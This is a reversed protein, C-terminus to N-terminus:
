PMSYNLSMGGGGGCGTPPPAYPIHGFAGSESTHPGTSQDLPRWRLLSDTVGILHVVCNYHVYREQSGSGIHSVWGSDYSAPPICGLPSVCGYLHSWRTQIPSAPTAVWDITCGLNPSPYSSPSTPPVTNCFTSAGAHADNDNLTLLAASCTIAMLLTRAM